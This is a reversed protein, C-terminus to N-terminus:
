TLIGYIVKLFRLIYEQIQAERKMAWVIQNFGAQNFGPNSNQILQLDDISNKYQEAIQNTINNKEITSNSIPLCYIGSENQFTDCYYNISSTNNQAVATQIILFIGILFLIRTM